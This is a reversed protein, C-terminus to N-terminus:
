FNRTQDTTALLRRMRECYANELFAVSCNYANALAKLCSQLETPSKICTELSAKKCAYSAAARAKAACYAHDLTKANTMRLFSQADNESITFYNSLDSLINALTPAGMYATASSSLALLLALVVALVTNHSMAM